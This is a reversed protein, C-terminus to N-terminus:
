ATLTMLSAALAQMTALANTNATIAANIGGIAALLGQAKMEAFKVEVPVRCSPCYFEVGEDSVEGVKKGCQCRVTGGELTGPVASKMGERYCPGSRPAFAVRWTTAATASGAEAPVASEIAQGSM